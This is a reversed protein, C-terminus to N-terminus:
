SMRMEQVGLPVSAIVVGGSDTRCVLEIHDYRERHPLANRIVPAVARLLATAPYDPSCTHLQVRDVSKAAVDAIATARVVKAYQSWRVFKAVKNEHMLHFLPRREGGDAPQVWIDELVEQAVWARQWARHRGRQARVAREFLASEAPLRVADAPLGNSYMPVATFPWEESQRVLVVILVACALLGVVTFVGALPVDGAVPVHGTLAPVVLLLYCWM